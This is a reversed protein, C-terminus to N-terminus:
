FLSAAADLLSLAINFSRLLQHMQIISGINYITLATNSRHASPNYNKFILEPKTFGDDERYCLESVRGINFAVKFIKMSVCNSPRVMFGENLDKWANRIREQYGEMAEKKSVGYEKMYCAIGSIQGGRKEEDLWQFADKEAEEMGMMLLALTTVTGISWMGNELYEDLTPMIGEHKWRAEMHYGLVQKKVVGKCYPVTFSRGEKSLEQEVEDSINLVTEYLNKLYDVPIEDMGSMDFREIAKTLHRVEEFFGYADYADDVSALAVYWKSMVNRALAFRPEFLLEVAIFFSEVIRQRGHPFKSSINSKRWWSSILSLEQQLLMQVRNFDYKAFKLLLDNKSEDKEYFSIYQKAELRPMGKHYPRYLANAIYERLHDPCSQSIMMSELHSTTFALAEDLILEGHMGWHNAECLSIMGKIDNVPEEKFIGDDNKFKNFVDCSMKYGHSRFVQFIVAVIHLNHDENEMLQPLITILLHSLQEEIEDEFHYSVGLRYLSNILYTNEIPDYKSTMLKDKVMEKLIEVHRSCSELESNTFPLTMFHDGWMDPAFNGLPRVIQDQYQSNKAQLSSAASTSSSKISALCTNGRIKLPVMPGSIGRYLCSTTALAAQLQAM